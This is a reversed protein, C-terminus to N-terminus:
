QKDGVVRNRGNNKAIYLNRDANSILSFRDDDQSFMAAGISVTVKLDLQNHGDNYPITLEEIAKRIKEAVVLAGEYSTEPMIVTFEEGGYRSVIDNSRVTNQISKAVKKLVQDGIQHGYTDNFLKFHDIDVM